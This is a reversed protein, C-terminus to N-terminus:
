VRERNYVSINDLQTGDPAFIRQIVQMTNDDASLKRQAWVITKDDKISESVLTKDDVRTMVVFDVSDSDEYSYRKGDPHAQYSASLSEDEQNAWQMTINYVDNDAEITYIATKPPEGAQYDSQSADLIWTGVFSDTM